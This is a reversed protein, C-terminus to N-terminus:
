LKSIFKCLEKYTADNNFNKDIKRILNSDETYDVTMRFNSYDKKSEINMIKFKKKNKYFYETVNEKESKNLVKLLTKLKNNSIIEVSQGKPFTRPFANTVLDLKSLKKKSKLIVKDIIKSDIFPSDASIRVFFDSNNLKAAEYCRKAVNQLSGRYFNIKKKILFRVLKNDTKDKSTVVVIKSIEKSKKVRNIVKELITKKGIKM